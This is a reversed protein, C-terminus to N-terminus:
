EVPRMRCEMDTAPEAGLSAPLILARPTGTPPMRSVATMANMPTARFMKTGSCAKSITMFMPATPTIAAQTVM